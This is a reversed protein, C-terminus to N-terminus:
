CHTDVLTPHPIFRIVTTWMKVKGQRGAMTRDILLDVAVAFAHLIMQHLNRRREPYRSMVSLTNLHARPPGLYALVWGKGEEFGPYLPAVLPSHLEQFGPLLHYAVHRTQENGNLQRIVASFLTAMTNNPPRVGRMRWIIDGFTSTWHLATPQM